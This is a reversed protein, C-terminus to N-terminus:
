TTSSEDEILVCEEGCITVHSNESDSKIMNALSNSTVEYTCGGAFSCVLGSSSDSVSFENVLDVDAFSYFAQYPDSDPGVFTIKPLGSGIPVGLDFTASIQTDSDVVVSDAIVGLYEVSPTFDTLFEFGVGTLIVTNADSVSASSDLKPHDSSSSQEYACL